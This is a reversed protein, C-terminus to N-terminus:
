SVPRVTAEIVRGDFEQVIRQVLSDTELAQQALVRSDALLREDREAPSEMTPEQITIIVNADSISLRLAQEIDYQQSKNFLFSQDPHLDFYYDHNEVKALGPQQCDIAYLRRFTTCCGM